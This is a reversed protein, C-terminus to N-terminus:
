PSIAELDIKEWSFRRKLWNFGSPPIRGRHQLQGVVIGPTVGARQAFRIIAKGDVRLNDLEARHRASILTREAFENAEAECESRPDNGDELFLSDINHLLLHGAEHFFSFWFQDDSRYRFTLVIMAKNPSLFKTAGSAPCGKPAKAVVVAVGADACMDRLMPIFTEPNKQRTLGKIVELRERFIQPSWQACSIRNALLESWRLWAAIAGATSRASLSLRFAVNTAIGGFRLQWSPVDPVGFLDLCAEAAESQSRFDAIWGLSVMERVPFQKVWELKAGQIEAERVRAADSRFQAERKTWFAESSGLCRSIRTALDGDVPEDGTLLRHVTEVREGILEAFREQSIARAALINAITAGPAVAWDPEFQHSTTAKPMM